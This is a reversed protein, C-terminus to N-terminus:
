ENVKARLLAAISKGAELDVAPWRVARIQEAAVPEGDANLLPLERFASGDVSASHAQPAFSETLVVLGEPVPLEPTVAKVVEDSVNTFVARYELVQGPRVADKVETFSEKGDADASVAFVKLEIQLPSAVVPLM